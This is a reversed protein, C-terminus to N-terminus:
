ICERFNFIFFSVKKKEHSFFTSSLLESNIRPHRTVACEKSLATAHVHFWEHQIITHKRENTSGGGVCVCVHYLVYMCVLSTPGCPARTPM